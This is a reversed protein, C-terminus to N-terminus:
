KKVNKKKQRKKKISKATINEPIILAEHNAPFIIIVRKRDFFTMNWSLKGGPKLDLYATAPKPITTRLSNIGPKAINITSLVEM